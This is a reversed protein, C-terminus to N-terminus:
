TKCIIGEIDNFVLGTATKFGSNSGIKHKISLINENVLEDIGRRISQNPNGYDDLIIIPNNFYEIVRPM